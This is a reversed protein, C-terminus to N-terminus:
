ESPPILVPTVCACRKFSPTSNGTISGPRLRNLLEQVFFNDASPTESQTLPKGHKPVSLVFVQACPLCCWCKLEAMSNCVSLCPHEASTSSLKDLKSCTCYSAVAVASGASQALWMDAICYIIHLMVLSIGPMFCTQDFYGFHFDALAAAFLAPLAAKGCITEDHGVSILM